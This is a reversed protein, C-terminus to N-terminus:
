GRAALPKARPDHITAVPRGISAAFRALKDPALMSTVRSVKGGRAEVWSVREVAGDLLAVLALSGNVDHFEYTFEWEAAIKRMLGALGRSVQDIGTIHRRAALRSEGADSGWTVDDTMIRAVAGADGSAMATLFQEILAPSAAEM